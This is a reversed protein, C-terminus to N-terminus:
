EHHWADSAGVVGGASPPRGLAPPRAGAAATWPRSRAAAPRGPWAPGRHRCRPRLAGPCPRSRAPAALAWWAPRWDRLSAGYPRARRRAAARATRRARAALGRWAACATRPRPGRRAARWSPASRQLRRRAPRARARLPRRAPSWRAARPRRRRPCRRPQPPGPRRPQRRARMPARACAASRALSRPVLQRLRMWCRRRLPPTPPPPQQLRPRRPLHRRPLRHPGLMDEGRTQYLYTESATNERGGHLSTGAGTSQMWLCTWPAASLTLCTKLPCPCDGSRGAARMCCARGLGARRRAAPRRPRLRARAGGPLRGAAARPALLQLPLQALLAQQRRARGGARPAAAGM